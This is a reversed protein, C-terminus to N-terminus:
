VKKVRLSARWGVHWSRRDASIWGIERHDGAQAIGSKKRLEQNTKLWSVSDRDCMGLRRIKEYADTDQMDVGFEQSQVLSEDFNLNRRGLPSEVCCDEFVFEDGDIGIIQPYGGTEEMKSLGYLKEPAARLSKDIDAFIVNCISKNEPTEFRSKITAILEDTQEPTLERKEAKKLANTVDTRVDMGTSTLEALRVRHTESLNGERQAKELVSLAWEHDQNPAEQTM